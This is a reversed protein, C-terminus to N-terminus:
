AAELERRTISLESFTRGSAEHIADVGALKELRKTTVDVFKPEYEILAAARDVKEAAIFTTGSGGFRDLVLEGPASLDLDPGRHSCGTQSDPAVEFAANRCEAFTNV